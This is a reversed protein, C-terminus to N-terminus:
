VFRQPLWRPARAPLEPLTRPPCKRYSLLLQIIKTVTISPESPCQLGSHWAYSFLACVWVKSDQYKGTRYPDEVHLPPPWFTRYTGRFWRIWVKKASYGLIKSPYGPPARFTQFFFIRAGLIPWSDTNMDMMNQQQSTMTQGVKEWVLFWLTAWRWKM